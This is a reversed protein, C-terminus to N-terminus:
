SNHGACYEQCMGAASVVAYGGSSTSQLSDHRRVLTKVLGCELDVVRGPFARSLRDEERLGVIEEV